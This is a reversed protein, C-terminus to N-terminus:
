ESWHSTIDLTTKIKMERIIFSISCRKRHKNAIQIDEKSLSSELDEAQKKNTQKNKNKILNSPILQKM